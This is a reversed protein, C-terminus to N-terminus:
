KNLNNALLTNRTRRVIDLDLDSEYLNVRWEAISFVQRIHDTSVPIIFDTIPHRRFSYSHRRSIPRTGSPILLLTVTHHRLIDVRWPFSFLVNHFLM